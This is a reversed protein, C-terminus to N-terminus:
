RSTRRRMGLISGGIVIILALSLWPALVALKSVPYVEGGVAVPALATPYPTGSAFPTGTLDSLSPFTSSTVTVVICGDSYSQNSARQWSSGDWYYIVTDEDAPCFEITLSDVGSDDDLYVDYYDGTAKFSPIRGPNDEYKAIIITHDGTADITVDGGTPTNELTGPGDMTESKAEEVEAGIWPDYGVNDSVADGTGGSNGAHTPGSAYGWWNNTADVTATLDNNWVGYDNNGYINNFNISITSADVSGNIEVGINNGTVSNSTLTNNNSGDLLIGYAGNGNTTNETLTNSDSNDLYIGCESNENATNGTLTNGNSGVDGDVYIGYKSNSNATNETLTNNNSNDLYIGYYNDLCTNASINCSEVRDLYIGAQKDATAGKVTFGSIDVNYATVNFAHNHTTSGDVITESAGNQSQITVSTGVSVNETYIGAAVLITDGSSAANIAAQITLYDDPVRLTDPSASVACPVLALSFALM